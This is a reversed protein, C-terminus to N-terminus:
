RVLSGDQRSNLCLKLPRKDTWTVTKLKEYDALTPLTQNQLHWFLLALYYYLEKSERRSKLAGSLLIMVYKGSNENAFYM